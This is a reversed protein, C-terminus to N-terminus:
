GLGVALLLALEDVAGDLPDAFPCRGSQHERRVIRLESLDDFRPLPLVAVIAALPHQTLFSLMAYPPASLQLLDQVSAGGLRHRPITDLQNEERIHLNAPHCRHLMCVSSSPLLEDVSRRELCDGAGHHLPLRPGQARILTSQLSAM